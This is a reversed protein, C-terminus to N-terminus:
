VGCIIWRLSLPICIILLQIKLSHLVFNVPNPRLVDKFSHKIHNRFVLLFCPLFDQLITSQDHTSTNVASQGILLYIKRAISEVVRPRKVAVGVLSCICYCFHLFLRRFLVFLWAFRFNAHSRKKAKSRAPSWLFSAFSLRLLQM